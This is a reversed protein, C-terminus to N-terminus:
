AFNGLFKVNLVYHEGDGLVDVVFRKVLHVDVFLLDMANHHFINRLKMIRNMVFQVNNLMM